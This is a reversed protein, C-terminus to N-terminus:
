YRPQYGNFQQQQAGYQMGGGLFNNTYPVAQAGGFQQQGFGQQQFGMNRRAPGQYPNGMQSNMMGYNNGGFSYMDFDSGGFDDDWFGSDDYFNDDYYYGYGYDDEEEALVRRAEEAYSRRRQYTQAANAYAAQHRANRRMFRQQRRSRSQPSMYQRCRVPNMQFGGFTAQCYKAYQQEKRQFNRQDNQQRRRISEMERQAIRSPYYDGERADADLEWQEMARDYRELEKNIKDDADEFSLAKVRDRGRGNDFDRTKPRVKSLHESKLFFGRVDRAHDTLAYREALKEVMRLHLKNKMEALEGVKENIEKIRRDVKDRDDGRLHKRQKMLSDLERVYSDYVQTNLERLNRAYEGLLDRAEEEEIRWEGGRYADKVEQGIRKLEDYISEATTDLSQDRTKTLLQVSLQYAETDQFNSRLENLMQDITPVDGTSCVHLADRILGNEHLVPLNENDDIQELSLCKAAGGPVSVNLGNAVPGYFPSYNGRRPSAAALLIKTLDGEAPEIPQFNYDYNIAMNAPGINEDFKFNGGDKKLIDNALLCATIKQEETMSEFQAKDIGQWNGADDAINAMGKFAEWDLSANNKFSLYLYKVNEDDNFKVDDTQSAAADLNLCRSTAPGAIYSPITMRYANSGSIRSFQIDGEPILTKLFELSIHRKTEDECRVQESSNLTLDPSSDISAGANTARDSSSSSSAPIIRGGFSFGDAYSNASLLTGVILTMLIKSKKM